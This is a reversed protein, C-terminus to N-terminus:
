EVTIMISDGQEFEIHDGGALYVAIEHDGPEIGRLSESTNGGTIMGWSTGDVYVHWHSGDAGLDFNDVQVEVVVEDGQAFTAGDDPSIISIAAGGPNPIREGSHEHEMDSEGDDMNTNADHEMDEGEGMAPEETPTTEEASNANSTSDSTCAALLVLSFVLILGLLLNKKYHNKNSLM